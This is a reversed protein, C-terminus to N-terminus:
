TSVMPNYGSDHLKLKSEGFDTLKVQVLSHHGNSDEVVNIFVNNAKLDHDMVGNEHLYNMGDTIQLMINMALHLPRPPGESANNKKENLYKWLNMSMLKFVIIPQSEKVGVRHISGCKPTM